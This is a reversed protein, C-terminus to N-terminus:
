HRVRFLNGAPDGSGIQMHVLNNQRIKVARRHIRASNDADTGTVAWGNFRLNDSKFSLVAM